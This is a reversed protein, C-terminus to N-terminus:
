FFNIKKHIVVNIYDGKFFSHEELVAEKIYGSDELIPYLHPRIDLAYTFIKHLKLEKFAVKSILSLYTKWHLDFQDKELKTDMIFSIEANRDIWNIHVLGGYGICVDNKLYSFLLQNPMEEKFLQSVVNKFYGEQDKLTLLKSQRLHYMQENRWKMIDFRDEFRIPKIFFLGKNFTQKKICKYKDPFKM